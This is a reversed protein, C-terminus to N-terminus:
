GCGVAACGTAVAAGAAACGVGWGVVVLGAGCGVDRGVFVERVEIEPADSAESSLLAEVFLESSLASCAAVM